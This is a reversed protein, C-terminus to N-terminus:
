RRWVFGHVAGDLGDARGGLGSLLTRSPSQGLNEDGVDSSTMRCSAGAFGAHIGNILMGGLLPFRNQSLREHTFILQPSGKWDSVRSIRFTELRVQVGIM